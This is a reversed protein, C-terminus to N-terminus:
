VKVMRGHGLFNTLWLPSRFLVVLFSLFLARSNGSFALAPELLALFAATLAATTFAAAWRLM